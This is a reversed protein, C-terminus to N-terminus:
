YPDPVPSFQYLETEIWQPTKSSILMTKGSNVVIAEFQAVVKDHENKRVDMKGTTVLLLDDDRSATLAGGYLKYKRPQSYFIEFDSEDRFYEKDVYDVGKGFPVAELIDTGPYSICATVFYIEKTDTDKISAYM